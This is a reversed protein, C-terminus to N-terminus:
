VPVPPKQKILHTLGKVALETVSVPKAIFDNAGSLASQARAEFEKLGTIFVVPTAFHAPIKRLNTCVQYGNMGPLTVDLFVLDFRNNGLLTLAMEGNDVAVSRVRSRELATTIVKQSVVEDEVVLALPSATEEAAHGAHALLDLSDLAGAITRSTSPTIRDPKELLQQALGALASTLHSIRFLGVEAAQATMLESQQIIVQFEANHAGTARILSQLALRMPAIVGEVSNYFHDRATQLPSLKGRVAFVLMEKVIEAVKSPTTEAKVLYRILGAEVEEPSGVELYHNSLLIVPTKKHNKDARMKKIIELGSLGPMLFDSIVLDPSLGLLAKIGAVGDAAVTTEFGEAILKLEYTKAVILDDEIILIKKKEPMPTDGTRLCECLNEFAVGLAPALKQAEDLSQREGFAEMERCLAAAQMGGFNGCSGALKHALRRVRGAHGAILAEQLQRHLPPAEEFFAKVLTGWVSPEGPVQIKRLDELVSRDIIELKPM